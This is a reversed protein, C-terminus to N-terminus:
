RQDPNCYVAGTLARLGPSPDVVVVGVGVSPLVKGASLRKTIVTAAGGLRRHHVPAATTVPSQSRSHCAQM